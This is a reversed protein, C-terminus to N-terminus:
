GSTDLYVVIDSTLQITEVRERIIEQDIEIKIEAFVEIRWPPLLRPNIMELKNLQGM